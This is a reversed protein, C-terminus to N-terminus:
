GGTLSLVADILVEPAANIKVDNKEAYPEVPLLLHLGM